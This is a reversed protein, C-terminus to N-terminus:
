SFERFKRNYRYKINQIIPNAIQPINCYERSTEYMLYDDTRNLIIVVSYM